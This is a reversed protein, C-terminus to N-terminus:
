WLEYNDQMGVINVGTTNYYERILKCTKGIYGEFPHVQEM